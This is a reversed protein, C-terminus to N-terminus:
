LVLKFLKNILDQNQKQTENNQKVVELVINTLIKVDTIDIISNTDFTKNTNIYQCKQKHKWLGGHTNYNKKCECVFINSKNKELISGNSTKKHKQTLLHKEYDKKNSTNYNCFICCFKTPIKPSLFVEM